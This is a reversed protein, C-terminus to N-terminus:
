PATRGNIYRTLGDERVRTKPRRSGPAAIDKVALDGAAILRYVHARSCRLRAATDNITLLCAAPKGTM